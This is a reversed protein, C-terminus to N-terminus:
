VTRKFDEDEQYMKRRAIEQWNESEYKYQKDIESQSAIVCYGIPVLWWLHEFWSTPMFFYMACLAIARWFWKFPYTQNLWQGYFVILAVPIMGRGTEGNGSYALCGAFVFLGWTIVRLAIM